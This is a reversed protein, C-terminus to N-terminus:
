SGGEEKGGERGLFVRMLGGSDRYSAAVPFIERGGM